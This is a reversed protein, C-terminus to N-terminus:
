ILSFTHPFPCPMCRLAEKSPAFQGPLVLYRPWAPRFKVLDFLPNNDCKVYRQVQSPWAAKCTFALKKDDRCSVLSAWLSIEFQSLSFFCDQNKSSGEVNSFCIDNNQIFFKSNRLANFVFFNM